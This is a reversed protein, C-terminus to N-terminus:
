KPAPAPEALAAASASSAAEAQYSAAASVANVIAQDTAAQDPSVGPGAAAAEAPGEEVQRPRAKTGSGGNPIRLVSATSLEIGYANSAQDRVNTAFKALTGKISCGTLLFGIALVAFARLM